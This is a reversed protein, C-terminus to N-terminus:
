IKPRLSEKQMLARVTQNNLPPHDGIPTNRSLKISRNLKKNASKMYRECQEFNESVLLIRYDGKSCALYKGQGLLINRCYDIASLEYLAIDAFTQRGATKPYKIELVERVKDGLFVSGYEILNNEELWSFLGRGVEVSYKDM